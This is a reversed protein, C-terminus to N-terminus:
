LVDQPMCFFAHLGEYTKAIRHGLDRMIPSFSRAGSVGRVSCRQMSMCRSNESSPGQGVGQSSRTVGITVRSASGNGSRVIKM